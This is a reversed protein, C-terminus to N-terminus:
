RSPHLYSRRRLEDGLCGILLSSKKDNGAVEDTRESTKNRQKPVKKEKRTKGLCFSVLEPDTRITPGSRTVAQGKSGTKIEPRKNLKKREQFTATIRPSTSSM